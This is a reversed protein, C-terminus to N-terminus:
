SKKRPVGDSEAAARAAKLANAVTQAGPEAGDGFLESVQRAVSEAAGKAPLKAMVDLAAIIRLLNARERNRLPREMKADSDQPVGAESNSGDEGSEDAVPANGRATKLYADIDAARFLCDWEQPEGSPSEIILPPADEDIAYVQPPLACMVQSWGSRIFHAQREAIAFYGSARMPVKNADGLGAKEHLSVYCEHFSPDPLCRANPQETSPWPCILRLRVDEDGWPMVDEFVEFGRRGFALAYRLRVFLPFPVQGFPALEFAQALTEHDVPKGLGDSLRKIGEEVSIFVKEM